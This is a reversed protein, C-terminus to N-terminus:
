QRDLHCEKRCNRSRKGSSSRFFMGAILGAMAGAIGPRSSSDRWREPAEAVPLSLQLLSGAADSNRAGAPPPSTIRSGAFCADLINVAPGTTPLSTVLADTPTVTPRPASLVWHSPFASSISRDDRAMEFWIGDENDITGDPDDGGGSLYRNEARSLGL